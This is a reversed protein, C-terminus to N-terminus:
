VQGTGFYYCNRTVVDNMNYTIVGRTIVHVELMFSTTVLFRFFGLSGIVVTGLLSTKMTKGYRPSLLLNIM